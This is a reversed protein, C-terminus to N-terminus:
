DRYTLAKVGWMQASQADTIAVSCMRKVEPDSSRNRLANLEDIATAFQRKIDDVLADKSPNFTLGVAREGFTPERSNAGEESGDDAKEPGIVFMTGDGHDHPSFIKIGPGDSGFGSVWTTVKGQKVPIKYNGNVSVTINTTM